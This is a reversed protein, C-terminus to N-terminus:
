TTLRVQMVDISGQEFGTRCYVLYYRWMRIFREDFGLARVQPLSAEFRERWVALTRAYDRGFRHPAGVSLGAAAAAASFREMSPLMGGPFVYRQIFDPNRKYDDYREDEITIVQLAATGGRTLLEATRRFFVPWWREGVAEFMEISAIGSYAGQVARYDQLRIDIKGELGEARVRERAREAQSESLTLGTVRCGAERAAHLAFGGWGCGIELLHDRRGPQLLGLIRDYKRRQGAELQDATPRQTAGDLIASSYTMGEDLWLEYFENGLDYHAAINRKSGGSPSNDHMAHFLRYAPRLPFPVDAVWGASINALGLELVASLDETDWCGDMYGEALAIDGGALIRRALRPDRVDISAVPGAARGGFRYDGGDPMRVRLEGVKIGRLVVGLVASALGPITRAKSAGTM